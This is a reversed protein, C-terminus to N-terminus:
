EIVISPFVAHAGGAQPCADGLQVGFELTLTSNPAPQRNLKLVLKDSGAFPGQMKEVGLWDGKEDRAGGTVWAYPDLEADFNFTVKEVPSTVHHPLRLMVWGASPEPECGVVPSIGPFLRLVSVEGTQPDAEAHNFEDGGAPGKKYPPKHVAKGGGGAASAGVSLGFAVLCLAVFLAIRRVSPAGAVRPSRMAVVPQGM